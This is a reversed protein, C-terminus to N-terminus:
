NQSMKLHSSWESFYSSERYSSLFFFGLIYSALFLQFRQLSVAHVHVRAHGVVSQAILDPVNGKLKIGRGLKLSILSIGILM